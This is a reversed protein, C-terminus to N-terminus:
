DAISYKVKLRTEHAVLEERLENARTRYPAAAAEALATQGGVQGGTAGSSQKITEAYVQDAKDEQEKILKDYKVKYEAYEQDFSTFVDEASVGENFFGAISATQTVDNWSVVCGLSEFIARFPVYTRDQYLINPETIEKGNVVVKIANLDVALNQEVAVPNSQGLKAFANKLIEAKEEFEKKLREAEEEAEKKEDADTTAAALSNRNSILMDYEVKLAAYAEDYAGFNGVLDQAFQVSGSSTIIATATADEYDVTCGIGEAIERLPVYTRDKYLLNMGKYQQDNVVVNIGNVSIKEISQASAASIGLTIVLATACALIRKIKM